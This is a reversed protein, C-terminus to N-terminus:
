DTDPYLDHGIEQAEEWERAMAAEREKNIPLECIYLRRIM